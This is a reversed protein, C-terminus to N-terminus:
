GGRVGREERRRVPRAAPRGARAGPQPEGVGSPQGVPAGQGGPSGGPAAVSWRAGSARNLVLICWWTAGQGMAGEGQTPADGQPRGRGIRGGRLLPTRTNGAYLAARSRGAAAHYLRGRTPARLGDHRRHGRQRARQRAARDWRTKGLYPRGRPPAGAGTARDNRGARDPTRSPRRFVACPRRIYGVGRHQTDSGHGIQDSRGRQTNAEGARRGRAAPCGIPDGVGVGVPTVAVAVGMPVSGGVEVDGVTVETDEVTRGTV